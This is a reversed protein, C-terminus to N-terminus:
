IDVVKRWFKWSYRETLPVEMYNEECLVERSSWALPLRCTEDM